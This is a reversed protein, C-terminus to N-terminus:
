RPLCCCTSIFIVYRPYLHLMTLTPVSKLRRRLTEFVESQPLLMLITYLTKVLHPHKAPSLLHMRLPVFLPTELLQVLRDIQVLVHVTEEGALRRCACTLLM